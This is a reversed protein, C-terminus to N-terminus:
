LEHVIFAACNFGYNFYHSATYRDAHKELFERFSRRQGFAPNAKNCNWDDFMFVTGDQIIEDRVLADLVENTSQYLDCDFHVLAAKRSKIPAKLTESFYGKHIHLRADSIILTLRQRIHEEISCGFEQTWSQPLQMEEQWVGRTVDYSAADVENKARPLGEFSDYLHLDGLYHMDRLKTAFQRATWGGLVGFEYIDGDVGGYVIFDMITQIAEDYWREARPRDPFILCETTLDRRPKEKGLLRQLEVRTEESDPNLEISQVLLPIAAANGHSNRVQIAEAFLQKAIRDLGPKAHGYRNILRCAGSYAKIAGARDGAKEAAQGEAVRKDVEPINATPMESQMALSM